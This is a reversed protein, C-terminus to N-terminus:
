HAVDGGDSSGDQGVPEQPESTCGKLWKGCYIAVIFSIALWILGTMSLKFVTM